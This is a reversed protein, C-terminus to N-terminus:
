LKVVGKKSVVFSSCKQAFNISKKINKTKLFEGVFASIFTDGAGSVDKVEILKEVPFIENKYKCGKEGLTILLKDYFTNQNNDIFQKNKNYEHENLKIFTCNIAWNGLLKKTDMFVLSHNSSIRKIDDESIFGKNYDSIIVADYQSLFEITYKDIDIIPKAVDNDDVRLLMQNSKKDVYRTKTILNSNCTLVVDIGLSKVNEAVNAAMGPNETQYIPNFVPVPAEPCIRNVGGYIFKDVCSDGIVLIKM